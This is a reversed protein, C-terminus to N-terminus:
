FTDLCSIIRTSPSSNFNIKWEYFISSQINDPRSKIKSSTQFRHRTSVDLNVVSISIAISLSQLSFFYIFPLFFIFSKHSTICNKSWCHIVNEKPKNIQHYLFFFLNETVKNNRKINRRKKEEEYALNNNIHSIKIRAKTAVKEDLFLLLIFIFAFFHQLIFSNKIYTSSFATSRISHSQIM